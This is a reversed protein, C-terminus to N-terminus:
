NNIEEKPQQKSDVSSTLHSDVTISKSNNERDGPKIRQDLMSIASSRKSSRSPIAAQAIPGFSEGQHLYQNM